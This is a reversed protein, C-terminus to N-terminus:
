LFVYPLGINDALLPMLFLNYFININPFFRIFIHSKKPEEVFKTTM